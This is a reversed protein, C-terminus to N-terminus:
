HRCVFVVDECAIHTKYTTKDSRRVCWLPLHLIRSLVAVLVLQVLQSHFSPARKLLPMLDDWYGQSLINTQITTISYVWVHLFRLVTDNASCLTPGLPVYLTCYALLLFLESCISRYWSQFYKTSGNSSCDRQALTTSPCVSLGRWVRFLMGLSKTSDRNAANIVCDQLCLCWQTNALRVRIALEFQLNAATVTDMFPQTKSPM